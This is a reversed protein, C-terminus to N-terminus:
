DLLVFNVSPNNKAASLVAGAAEYGLLIILNYGENILSNINPTFDSTDISERSATKLDQDKAVRQLGVLALQNFGRDNFGGSGSILGVKPPPIETFEISTKRSCSTLQFLIMLSLIGIIFLEKKMSQNM